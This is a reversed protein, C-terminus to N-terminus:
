LGMVSILASRRGERPLLKRNGRSPTLLVQTVLPFKAPTGMGPDGTIMSEDSPNPCGEERGTSSAQAEELIPNLAGPDSFHPKTPTDMVLDGSTM